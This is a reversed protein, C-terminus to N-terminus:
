ATHSQRFSAARFADAALEELEKDAEVAYETLRRERLKELLRFRRRAAEVVARQAEVARQRKLFEEQLRLEDRKTREGYSEMAVLDAAKPSPSGVMEKELAARATQIRAIEAATALVAASRVHLRSEEVECQKGYWHLVRALRFRFATM